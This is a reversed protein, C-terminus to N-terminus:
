PLACSQRLSCYCSGRCGSIDPLSVKFPLTALARSMIIGRTPLFPLIGVILMGAAHRLYPNDIHEFSDEALSLGRVFATAAIGILGGLFAYLLLADLTAPHTSTVLTAPIAFAPHVGFFIRGVFTAAGTVLAVPLFTRASLEPMMLELAFMVGGIPTNFTAAIGAGAGAAVLTIRQWAAMRIVQGFTSGLAAGIQIIPGERGIAAGTGISLASALSKIVAVVPRIVGGGYYIADMVEPVGHGRAEPAFNTILFTVIVSGIVPVLIVLAGWSSAPTFVSADYEVSVKGLFAINHILGILDRFIVAGFGAIIGVALALLSVRVLGIRNPLRIKTNLLRV